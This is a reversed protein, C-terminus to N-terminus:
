AGIPSAKVRGMWEEADEALMFGLAVAQDTAAQMKSVYADHTPYLRALTLPDFALTQGSPSHTFEGLYTAVPVEVAPLRVGM